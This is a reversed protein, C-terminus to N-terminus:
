QEQQAESIFREAAQAGPRVSAQAAIQALMAWRDKRISGKGMRLMADMLTRGKPSMLIGTIGEPMRAGIMAGIGGGVPGGLVLGVAGAGTRAGINRIVISGPGAPNLSGHSVKTWLDLKHKVDALDKGIEETMNKDFMEHKPNTKNFVWNRLEEVNIMVDNSDPAQKTFNAVGREFSQVARDLKTRKFAAQVLAARRGAKGGAEAIMSIDEDFMKFIDDSIKANVGPTSIATEALHNTAKYLVMIDDMSLAKTDADLIGALAKQTKKTAAEMGPFEGYVDILRRVGRLTDSFNEIPVEAGGFSKAAAYMVDADKAAMGMRNGVITTGLSELEDAARRMALGGVAAKVAPLSSIATSFGRGMVQAGKGLLPGAIPAAGSLALSVDSEPALGSEQAFLEGLLGGVAAGGVAGVGGFPAGIAGGIGAGIISPSAETALQAAGPLEAVRGRVASRQEPSVLGVRGGTPGVFEDDVIGESEFERAKEKRTKEAADDKALAEQNRKAIKRLQELSENGSAM